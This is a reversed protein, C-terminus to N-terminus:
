WNYQVAPLAFIRQLLKIYNKKKLKPRQKQPKKEINNWSPGAEQSLFFQFLKQQM